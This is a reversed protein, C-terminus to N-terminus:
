YACVNLGLERLSKEIADNMKFPEYVTGESSQRKKALRVQAEDTWECRGSVAILYLDNGYDKLITVREM